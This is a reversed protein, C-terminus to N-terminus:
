FIIYLIYNPRYNSSITKVGDKHIPTERATKLADAYIGINLRYAHKHYM